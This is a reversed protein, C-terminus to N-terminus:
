GKTTELIVGALKGAADPQAISGFNEGLKLRRQKNRMLLEVLNLLQKSTADNPLSEIAGLKKLRQTNKLQHGEALFPAPIVICAKHQAALEALVTAGGRTVVLDAAGSYKYFDNVFSFIEVRTLLDRDLIARYKDSAEALHKNGTIHIIYLNSHLSLLSRSIEIIKNNIDRSGLGAGGALIVEADAPLGIQRRFSRKLLNTVPTIKEDIPIGTYIIKEKPYPYSGSNAGVANVTAWRGIIKNALGPLSDSDHTIIPIRRLRAAIGVPVAVFGGKSFVLDPQVQKLVKYAERIGALTRFFDRTNLALTRIDILQKWSSEGHYRRYKGATIFAMENFDHYREKLSDFSDGKHGIYTLLCSPEIKKLARALSM